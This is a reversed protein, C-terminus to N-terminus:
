HLPYCAVRELNLRETWNRCPTGFAGITFNTLVRGEWPRPVLELRTPLVIVLWLHEELLYNQSLIATVDWKDGHVCLETPWLLPSMIRQDYTWTRRHGCLITSVIYVMVTPPSTRTVKPPISLCCRESDTAITAVDWISSLDKLFIFGGINYDCLSEPLCTGGRENQLM